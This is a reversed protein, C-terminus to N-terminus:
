MALFVSATMGPPGRLPGPLSGLSEITKPVMAFDPDGERRQAGGPIVRIYGDGASAHPPM